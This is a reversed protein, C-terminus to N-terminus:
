TSPHICTCYIISTFTLSAIRHMAHSPILTIFMRPEEKGGEEYEGGYGAGHDVSRQALLVLAIARWRIRLGDVRVHGDRGVVAVVVVM